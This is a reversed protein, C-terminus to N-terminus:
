LKGEKARKIVAIVYTVMESIIYISFFAGAAIIVNWYIDAFESM